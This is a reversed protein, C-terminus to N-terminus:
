QNSKRRLVIPLSIAALGFLALASPEPVSQVTVFAGKEYGGDQFAVILDGTTFDGDANWDGSGWTSNGAIDDEYELAQFVQVLDSSNFEGDL